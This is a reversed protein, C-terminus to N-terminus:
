LCGDDQLRKRLDASKCGGVTCMIDRLQPVSDIVRQVADASQRERLKRLAGALLKWHFDSEEKPLRGLIGASFDRGYAQWLRALLAHICIDCMPADIKTDELTELTPALIEDLTVWSLLRSKMLVEIVEAVAEGKTKENFGIDLFTELAFKIQSTNPAGEKWMNELQKEDRDSAYYSFVKKVYTADWEIKPAEKRPNNRAEKMVSEMYAPKAGAIQTVFMADQGKKAKLKAEANLDNRIESTKKATEKFMKKAWGNARLDLLDQIQFQVRKSFTAKGDSGVSRKLEMLRATFQLMLKKGHEQEDLGHGIATLLECVCEIKHEEPPVDKIGILEYVVQGIVKVALLQRLFLNGIFKMNAKAKDKEKKKKHLDEPSMTKLEEATPEFSTPLNEFETQCTNLLVRTFTQPKDNENEAPFKPYKSQLAFVMDAYTECWHPEALAKEFIIAPRALSSALLCFATPLLHPSRM